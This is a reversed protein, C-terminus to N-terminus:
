SAVRKRKFQPDELYKNAKLAFLESFMLTADNNYVNKCIWRVVATNRLGGRELIADDAIAIWLDEPLLNRRIVSKLGLKVSERAHHTLGYYWLKFDDKLLLYQIVDDVGQEALSKKRV